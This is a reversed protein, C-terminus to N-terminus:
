LRIKKGFCPIIRDPYRNYIEEVKSWDSLQTGMVILKGTECAMIREPQSFVSPTEIIHCHVDTLVNLHKTM